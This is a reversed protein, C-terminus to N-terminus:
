LAMALVITLDTLAWLWLARYFGRQEYAQDAHESQHYWAGLLWLWLSLALLIGLSRWNQFHQWAELLFFSFAILVAGGAVFFVRPKGLLLALTRDGRTRDEEMQYIQTLPYFAAFLFFFGLFVFTIPAEISREAAAWGAYMTLAGFGTSNILVDWGARAKMRVPPVSYLLSLVMCLTYALLFQKGLSASFLWGVGLLIISLHLLYRPAPPPNELYGIDGEDKDFVSNIALTGGNGLIGWIVCAALWRWALEVTLNFGVALLFGVSLHAAVIPWARPRLHLIYPRLTTPLLSRIRNTTTM